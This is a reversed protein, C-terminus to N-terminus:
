SYIKLTKWLRSLEQKISTLNLDSTNVDVVRIVVVDDGESHWVNVIHGHHIIIGHLM